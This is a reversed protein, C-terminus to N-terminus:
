HGEHSSAPAPKDTPSGHGAHGVGAGSRLRSESDLLFVGASVVSEGEVLGDVIEIREAMPVGLRVVRPEFHGEDVAVFVHQMLGSDVVADRPVTIGERPSGSFVATGYMGPRLAGDPNAVVIRVRVSRTRESLTPYVFDVAAEFPPLGTAAFELIVPMDFALQSSEGEPVEALVWLESLDALTLLETAPDVATGVSVARRLVVGDHPAAVTVLRRAQGSREIGTIEAETMGLVQLRARAGEVIASRPAQGAGNLVALYELQSAYLDQSFIAALPQGARVTEGTTAVYLQEIWGSVRTHAHSIRREDPVVTAVVRLSRSIAERRAPELKLGAATQLRDDLKVAARAHNDAVRHDGATTSGTRQTEHTIFPWGARQQQIFLAIFLAVFILAAMALAGLVASPLFLRPVRGNM